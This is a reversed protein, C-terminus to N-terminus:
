KELNKKTYILDEKLEEVSYLKTPDYGKKQATCIKLGLMLLLSLLVGLFKMKNIM